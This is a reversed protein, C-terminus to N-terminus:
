WYQGIWNEVGNIEFEGKIQESSGGTGTATPDGTQIMFDKIVRHFILGDYFQESVLRKFNKITIPTKNNSLFGSFLILLLSFVWSKFLKTSVFNFSSGFLKSITWKNYINCYYIFQSM